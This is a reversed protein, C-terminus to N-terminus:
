VSRLQLAQKSKKDEPFDWSYRGLSTNIGFPFYGKDGALQGMDLQAAANWQLAPTFSNGILKNKRM